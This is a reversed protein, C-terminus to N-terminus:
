STFNENNNIVSTGFTKYNRKIIRQILLKPAKISNQNTPENFQTELRKLWQNKDVSPIILYIIM